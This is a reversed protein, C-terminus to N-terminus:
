GYIKIGDKLIEEMLPLNDKLQNIYQKILGRMLIGRLIHLLIFVAATGRVASRINMKYNNLQIVQFLHFYKHQLLKLVQNYLIIVNQTQLQNKM